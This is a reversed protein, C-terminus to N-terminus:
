TGISLTNSQEQQDHCTAVAANYFLFGDRAEYTLYTGISAFSFLCPADSQERQKNAMTFASEHRQMTLSAHRNVSSLSMTFRQSM